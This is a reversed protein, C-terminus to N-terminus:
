YSVFFLYFGKDKSVESIYIPIGSITNPMELFAGMYAYTDAIHGRTGFNIWIIPFFIIFAYWWPYRLVLNEGIKEKRRIKILSTLVGIVGLWILILIYPSM